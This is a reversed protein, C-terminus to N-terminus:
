LHEIKLKERDVRGDDTKPLSSVFSIYRPKKFRAIRDGVFAILTQETLIEKGKLVCIAKVAEGWQEDPVGIVSVEAITPHEMIIKEVEAPYVNEGGSKILEKEATRDVYWLYGDRDFYGLDGTHLWGNRFTYETDQPKNWYGKFLMTGRAVIEGIEGTKLFAGHTDVIEVQVAYGPRGASGPKESYPAMTVFGATEAQGYGTWFKGGTLREFREITEPKDLGIAVRLSSLDISRDNVAELLSDLMPAFESMITVKYERIYKLADGVDFRPIIVNMGGAHLLASTMYLGFNHFLPLLLIHADETTLQWHYMLQLDNLILSKHSIVAGKPVGSVAATYIIVFDDGPSIRENEDVGRELLNGFSEFGEAPRGIMYYGEISSTQSKLPLVSDQFEPGIIMMKPAADAIIYEIEKTKLRWNIPVMIAGMKAAAGYLYVYEFCNFAVIAIRDGKKVGRGSLRSALRDVKELLEGYTLACENCVLSTRNRNIKANREIKSYLTYDYVGMSM